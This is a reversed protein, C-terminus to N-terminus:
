EQKHSPEVIVDDVGGVVIVVALLLVLELVLLM